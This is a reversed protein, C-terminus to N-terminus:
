RRRQRLAIGAVVGALLGGIGAGAAIAPSADGSEAAPPAATATPSPTPTPSPAPESQAEGEVAITFEMAVEAKTLEGQGVFVAYTAIFYTGPGSWASTTDSAAEQATTAPPAAVDIPEEDGGVTSADGEADFILSRDPAHLNVKLFGLGLRSTEESTLGSSATVRLRQGAGVHVAYYVYEEPLVTDRYTGPELIPATTFSGSGVVPSQASAPSAGLALAVALAVLRRM